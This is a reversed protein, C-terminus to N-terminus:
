LQRTQPSGKESLRHHRRRDRKRHAAVSSLQQPCNRQLPSEAAVVRSSGVAVRAVSMPDRQEEVLWTLNEEERQDSAAFTEVVVFYRAVVVPQELLTNPSNCPMSSKPNM